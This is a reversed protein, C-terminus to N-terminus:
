TRLIKFLNLYYDWARIKTFYGYDYLSANSYNAISSQTFDDVIIVVQKISM